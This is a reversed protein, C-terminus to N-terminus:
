GYKKKLSERWEDPTQYPRRADNAATAPQNAPTKVAQMPTARSKAIDAEMRKKAESEIVPRMEDAIFTALEEYSYNTGNDLSALRAFGIRAILAPTPSLGVKQFAAHIQQDTHHAARAQREQTEQERQHREEAQRREDDLRTREELERELRAIRRQEATLEQGDPGIVDALYPKALSEAFALAQQRHSEWDQGSLGPRYGLLQRILGAPDKELRERLQKAEQAYRHAETIKQDLTKRRVGERDYYSELESIPAEIEEEGRRWKHKYDSKLFEEFDKEEESGDDKAYRVRYKSPTKEEAAPESAPKRPEPIDPGGDTKPVVKPAPATITGPKAGNTPESTTVPTPTPTATDAM